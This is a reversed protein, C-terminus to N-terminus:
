EFGTTKRISNKQSHKHCVQKSVIKGPNCFFVGLSHGIHPLNGQLSGCGSPFLTATGGESGRLRQIWLIEFTRNKEIGSTKGLHEYHNVMQPPALTRWDVQSIFYDFCVQFNRKSSGKREWLIWPVPINIYSCKGYFDGMWTPLYVTRGM